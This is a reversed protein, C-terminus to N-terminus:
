LFPPPSFALGDEEEEEEDWFYRVQLYGIEVTTQSGQLCYYVVDVASFALVTSLPILDDEDEGQEKTEEEKEGHVTIPAETKCATAGLSCVEIEAPPCRLAEDPSM